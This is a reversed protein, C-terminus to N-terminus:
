PNMAFKKDFKVEIPTSFYGYVMQHRLKYWKLIVAQHIFQLRIYFNVKEALNQKTNSAFHTVIHLNIMAIM